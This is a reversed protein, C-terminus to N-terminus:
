KLSELVFEFTKKNKFTTPHLPSLVKQNKEAKEFIASTSPFVMLDIPNFISYFKTKSEYESSLYKLLKSNPRLDIFGPYNHFYAWISGHHPSCITVCKPVKKNSLFNIYYRAIIGGQSIGIIYLIDERVNKNIYDALKKSTEKISVQGLNEQYYFEYFNNFGNNKLFNKLPQYEKTDGGFGHIFLVPIEM